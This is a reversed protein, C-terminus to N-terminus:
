FRGTCCRAPCVPDSDVRGVFSSPGFGGVIVFLFSIAPPNHALGGPGIFLFLLSWISWSWIVTSLIYAAIPHRTIWPKINM